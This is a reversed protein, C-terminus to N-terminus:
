RVEVYREGGPIGSCDAPASVSGATMCEGIPRFHRFHIIADYLALFLAALRTREDLAEAPVNYTAEHNAVTLVYHEPSTLEHSNPSTKAFPFPLRGPRLRQAPSLSRFGPSCRNSQCTRSSFWHSQRKRVPRRVLNLGYV